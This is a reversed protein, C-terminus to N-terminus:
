VRFGYQGVISRNRGADLGHRVDLTYYIHVQM